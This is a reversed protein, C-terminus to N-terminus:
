AKRIKRLINKDQSSLKETAATWAAPPIKQANKTMFQFTTEPYLNWCERLTWGVGKQVYYHPHELHPKIFKLIKSSPLCKNRFRSYFLLGVLSQRVEWPNTSTNWTKFQPLLQSQNIELLRSYCNSLEDSHAWNDVRNQWNLLEEKVSFIEDNSCSNVFHAATLAVEFYRTKKWISNWIPWQESFSQQSFSYGQKLDQRIFPVKLNIFLFKSVNKGVYSEPKWKGPKHKKGLKLLSTEVEKLEKM